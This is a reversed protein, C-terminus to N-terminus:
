APHKRSSLEHSLPVPQGVVSLCCLSVVYTTHQIFHRWATPATGHSMAHMCRGRECVQVREPFGFKTNMKSPPLAVKYSQSLQPKLVPALIDTLRHIIKHKWSESARVDEGIAMVKDFFLQADDVAKLLASCLVM